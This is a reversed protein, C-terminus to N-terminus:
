NLNDSTINLIFNLITNMDEFHSCINDKLCIQRRSMTWRNKLRNSVFFMFVMKIMRKIYIYFIIRGCVCLSKRYRFWMCQWMRTMQCLGKLHYIWMNNQRNTQLTRNHGPTQPQTVSRFHSWYYLVTLSSPSVSWECLGDPPQCPISIFLSGCKTKEPFFTLM